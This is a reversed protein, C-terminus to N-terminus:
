TAEQEDAVREAVPDAYGLAWPAVEGRVVALVAQATGLLAQGAILAQATASGERRGGAASAAMRAAALAHRADPTPFGYEEGDEDRLAMAARADHELGPDGPDLAWREACGLCDRAMDDAFDNEALRPLVHRAIAVACRVTAQEDLRALEQGWLFWREEAPEPPTPPDQAALRAAEHGLFAALRLRDESLMGARARERLVDAEAEPSGSERWLRELERLRQDSM